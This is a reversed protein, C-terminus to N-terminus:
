DDNLFGLERLANLLQRVQYPKAMGGVDQFSMARAYGPRKYIIHSGRQRSRAFGFCEALGCLETFRLGAPNNLANELLTECRGM